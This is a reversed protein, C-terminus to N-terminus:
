NRATSHRATSWTRLHRGRSRRRSERCRCSKWRQSTGCTPIVDIPEADNLTVLTGALPVTGNLRQVWFTDNLPNFSEHVMTQNPGITRPMEGSWDNGVAYVLSGSQTTTLSVTPEGSAGSATATAGTGGAGSFTVVVISQTPEGGNPTSTVTIGSLANPSTAKWIESVGLQGNSREVLTWPLSGGSVTMTQGGTPPGAAAVFAVILDGAAVNFPPTTQTDFGFAVVSSGPSLDFFLPDGAETYRYDEALWGGDVNSYLRM